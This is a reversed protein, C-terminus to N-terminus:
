KGVEKAPTTSISDVRPLPPKDYERAALVLRRLRAVAEARVEPLQRKHDILFHRYIDNRAVNLWRFRWSHDRTVMGDPRMNAWCRRNIAAQMAYRVTFRDRKWPRRERPFEVDALPDHGDDEPSLWHAEARAFDAALGM